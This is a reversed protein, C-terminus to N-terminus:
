CSFSMRESFDSSSCVLQQVLLMWFTSSPFRKSCVPVVLSLLCARSLSKALRERTVVLVMSNVSSLKVVVLDSYVMLVLLLSQRRYPYERFAM